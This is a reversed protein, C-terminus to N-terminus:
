AHKQEQLRAPESHKQAHHLQELLANQKLFVSGMKATIMAEVHEADMQIEADMM